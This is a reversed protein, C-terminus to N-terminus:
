LQRTNTCITISKITTNDVEIWQVEDTDELEQSYYTTANPNTGQLTIKIDRPRSFVGTPLREEPNEIILFNLNVEEKFTTKISAGECFTETGTWVEGKGIYLGECLQIQTSVECEEIYKNLRETILQEVVAEEEPIVAEPPVTEAFTELLFVTLFLTIFLYSLIKGYGYHNKISKLAIKFNLYSLNVRKLWRKIIEKM